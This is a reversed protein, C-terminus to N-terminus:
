EPVPLTLSILVKLRQFLVENGTVPDPISTTYQNSPVNIYLPLEIKDTAYFPVEYGVYHTGNTTNYTEIHGYAESNNVVTVKHALGDEFRTIHNELYNQMITIISAKRGTAQQYTIVGNTDLNDFTTNLAHIISNSSSDITNNLTSIVNRSNIFLSSARYDNFISDAVRNVYESAINVNTGKSITNFSSDIHPSAFNNFIHTSFDTTGTTILYLTDTLNLDSTSFTGNFSADLGNDVLFIFNKQFYSLSTNLGTINIKVDFVNETTLETQYVFLDTASVDTLLEPLYTTNNSYTPHVQGNLSADTFHGLEVITM